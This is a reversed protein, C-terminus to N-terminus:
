RRQSLKQRGVIKQLYTFIGYADFRDGCDHTKLRQDIQKSIHADLFQIAFLPEYPSYFNFASADTSAFRERSHSIM